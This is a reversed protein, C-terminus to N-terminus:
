LERGGAQELIDKLIEEQERNMLEGNQQEYFDAFLEAPSKRAVDSGSAFIPGNGAQTRSNEFELMMLNPYVTRLRGIADYPEEEDTLVAAIYDQHESLRTEGGVGHRDLTPYDPHGSQLCLEAPDAESGGSGGAESGGAGEVAEFMSIQRFEDEQARRGWKLLEDLPGKIRRMDRLPRLPIQRLRIEGKPGLDVMTVSKKQMTESFSYKLPSGAYRVTDRGIRQPGHLHGLAVYDFVDFASVDVNDVGGISINESDSREPEQGCGTVFQHAVLVNREGADIGAGAIVARAAEDYSEPTGGTFPSVTSPKIFPMLYVNVAGHEDTLREKELKGGFVGAIHLGRNKMIRSGFGLREPSDHNGSILFVAPARELLATLFEDLLEVAEAPPQTKDYVDGAILVADPGEAETVALIQNLIYEQDPIMSFGNVRKGIHLDSTHLLKM